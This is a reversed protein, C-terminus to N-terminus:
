LGSAMVLAGLPNSITNRTAVRAAHLACRVGPGVFQLNLSSTDLHKFSPEHSVLGQTLGGSMRLMSLLSHPRFGPGVPGTDAISWKDTVSKSNQSPGLLALLISLGSPTCEEKRM